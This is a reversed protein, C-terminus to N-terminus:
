QRNKPNSISPSEITQHRTQLDSILTSLKGTANNKIDSLIEQYQTKAQAGDVKGQILQQQLNELRTQLQMASTQKAESTYHSVFSRRRDKSVEQPAQVEKKDGQDLAKIAQIAEHIEKQIAQRKEQLPQNITNLTSIVEALPPVLKYDPDLMRVIMDAIPKLNEPVDPGFIDPATKRFYERIIEYDNLSRMYKNLTLNWESENYSQVYDKSFLILLAVGCAFTDSEVSYYGEMIEPSIYQVTGMGAKDSIQGKEPKATALGFDIIKAIKRQEDWLMNDLKIDRHLFGNKHTLSVQELFPIAMELAKHVRAEGDLVNVQENFAKLYGKGWGLEDVLIIETDTEISDILRNLAELKKGEDVIEDRKLPNYGKPYKVAALKGTDMDMGLFVTGYEGEGLTHQETKMISVIQGNKGIMIPYKLQLEKGLPSDTTIFLNKLPALPEAAKEARRAALAQPDSVEEELRIKEENRKADLIQQVAIRLSPEIKKTDNINANYLYAARLLQLTLFAKSSVLRAERGSSTLIMDELNMKEHIRQSFDAKNDAM